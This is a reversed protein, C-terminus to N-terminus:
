NKTFHNITKKEGFWYKNKIKEQNMIKEKMERKRQLKQLPWDTIKM